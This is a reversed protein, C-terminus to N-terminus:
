KQLGPMPQKQVATKRHDRWCMWLHTAGASIASFIPGYPISAIVEDPTLTNYDYIGRCTGQLGISEQNSGLNNYLAAVANRYVDAPTSYIEDHPLSDGVKVYLCSVFCPLLASLIILKKM